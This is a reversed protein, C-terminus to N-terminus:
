LAGHRPLRLLRHIRRGQAATPTKNNATMPPDSSTLGTPCTFEWADLASLLASTEPDFMGDITAALLAPVIIEGLLSYTDAQAVRM